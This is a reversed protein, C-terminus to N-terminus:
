AKAPIKPVRPATISQPNQGQNINPNKKQDADPNQSKRRKKFVQDLCKQLKDKNFESQPNNESILKQYSSMTDRLTGKWNSNVYDPLSQSMFVSTNSGIQMVAACEPIGQMFQLFAARDMNMNADALYAGLDKINSQYAIRVFNSLISDAIKYCGMSEYLEIEDLINNIENFQM